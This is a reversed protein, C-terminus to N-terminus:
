HIQAQRVAEKFEETQRLAALIKEYLWNLHRPLQRKVDLLLVVRTASTFNSAGHPYADDWLLGQGEQLDVRKGNITLFCDGEAVLLPLHYRMVGKNPGKHIPVDKGAEMCSILASSITLDNQRVLKVLTPSISENMYEGYMKVIATKWKHDDTNAIDYQHSDVQSFEPVQQWKLTLYAEVESKIKEWEAEFAHSQPFLAEKDLIPQNRIWLKFYKDVCFTLVRKMDNERAQQKM